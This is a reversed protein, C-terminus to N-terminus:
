PPPHHRPHRPDGPPVFARRGAGDVLSWGRHTKLRHDHTCLPDLESLVTQKSVAWPTRHDIQTFTGSCAENSCKPANWLLAVRQAATPGRGLHVVNAVDKGKTIVLKLVSDGLVERAVSVPVPGVGAVECVESEHVVGRVLASLDVRLVALHKPTRTALPAAGDAMKMLADFAYAERAERREGAHAVAFERDILRELAAEFVAGREATGRVHCNWAGEADTYTRLSRRAHIRRHQADAEPMAAAKTRLCEERLENVSTNPAFAL